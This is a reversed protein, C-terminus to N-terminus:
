DQRLAVMPDVSSARRAPILCAVLAALLLTATVTGLAVIDLAGVGFWMGQMARGVLYAGGIGLVLGMSATLMGEKLVDKIVRSAGAGLAMRLGIEHTRQAVIFSMVGYIGLAALLLALVAFTGFLLTNFRDGQLSEHIIQDMTKVNALPLEPDLSQVVAAVSKQMAEPDGATRIAINGGPWPSQAYPVDIEPFDGDRPGGNRVYQSVGIVQWEVAPGLKTVGPILQEISLRQTLPDVGKFFRKVFTDNVIAVRVSAATDQATFTRGKLIEIGFTKFYDPTVQAFGAGPRQSPDSVPKGVITFPMGFYTGYVPIGTSVSASRVGPLVALRELLQDYFATVREAGDYKDGSMPVKFTLLHDSRFGMNVNALNVLSHVALGGGALLALALAFEAVVLARRFTNRGGSISRGSEKLVENADTRTAQWAPVCGFLVGSLMSVSLTFLLVPVNLEVEAESPLTYQPMAFLIGKLLVWALAVGLLGGIGALVLSETLFQAFLRKRVAGLSHRVAIERQRATGRALLLNAVNVCAILLVFAVAGLLFWLASQTDNSLFNNKLPEVSAGWGQNSVPYLEALHKTVATM